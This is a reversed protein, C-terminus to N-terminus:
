QFLNGICALVDLPDQNYFTCAVIDTLMEKMAANDPHQFSGGLDIENEPFLNVPFGLLAGLVLNLDSLPFPNPRDPDVDLESGDLFSDSLDQAVTTLSPLLLEILALIHQGNATISEDEDMVGNGNADDYAIIGREPWPSQAVSQQLEVFDAFSRGFEVGAQPMLEAAKDNTLLFNPFDPDTLILYMAHMLDSLLQNIQTLDLNVDFIYGINFNLNTSYVANEAGQALLVLEELWIVDQIDWDGTFTVIETGLLYLRLKDFRFVFDPHRNCVELNRSMESVVPHLVTSMYYQITDGAGQGRPAAKESVNQTSFLSNGGGLYGLAFDGFEDILRFLRLTDALVIGMAADTNEPEFEQVTMFSERARKGNGNRLNEKGKEIMQSISLATPEGNKIECGATALIPLAVTLLVTLAM